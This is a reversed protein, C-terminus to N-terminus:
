LIDYSNINKSEIFISRKHIEYNSDQLNIDAVRKFTILYKIIIILIIM